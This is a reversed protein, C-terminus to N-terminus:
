ALMLANCDSGINQHADASADFADLANHVDDGFISCINDVPDHVDSHKHSFTFPGPFV